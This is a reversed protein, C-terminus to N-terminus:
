LSSILPTHKRVKKFIATSDGKVILICNLLDLCLENDRTEKSWRDMYEILPNFIEKSIKDKQCFVVFIPEMM